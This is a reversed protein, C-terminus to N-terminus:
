LVVCLAPALIGTFLMWDNHDFDPKLANKYEEGHEGDSWELYLQKPKSLSIRM